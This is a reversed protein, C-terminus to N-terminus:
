ASMRASIVRAAETVAARASPTFANAPGAVSVGGLPRNRGDVIAAALSMRNGPLAQASLHGDRRAQYLEDHLASLDPQPVGREACCRAVQEAVERFPLWSLAAKGCTTLHAPVRRGIESKRPGSNRALYVVWGQTFQGLHAEQAPTRVLRDLVGGAARVLSTRRVAHGGLELALPGLQYGEDSTRLMGATVLTRCLEHATSRPIGTREAVQRVSLVGVSPSFARLVTCAKLM